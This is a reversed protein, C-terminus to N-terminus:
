QPRWEDRYGPQDAYASALLRIAMALAHDGASGLGLRYQADYSSSAEEYADLVRRKATIDALVFAPDHRAIHMADATRIEGQDSIVLHFLGRTCWDSPYDEVSRLGVSAGDKGTLYEDIGPQPTVPKDTKEDEWCWHEGTPTSGSGSGSAALAVQEDADLQARLWAVLDSSMTM